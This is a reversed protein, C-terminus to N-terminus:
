RVRTRRGRESARLIQLPREQRFANWAAICLRFMEEQSVRKKESTAGGGFGVAAQLLTTRLKLRPDTRKEMGTGDCVPMWFKPAIQPAKHFTAFLAAVVPGRFIHKHEKPSLKDLFSCVRIALDYHDTRLLYAVDDGDHQCREHQSTWFWQSFGRPVARLTATKVSKFEESGALYSEIVNARTRPSSRDISSYLTRVDQETQAEYELVKVGCKWGAPMELRAWATHQGNMRYTKGNYRCIILHVWEPHFTGRIMAKVLYDVHAQKLKRDGPFDEHAEILKVAEAHTFELNRTRKLELGGGLDTVSLVDTGAVSGQHKYQGSM